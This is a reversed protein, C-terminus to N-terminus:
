IFWKILTMLLYALGFCFIALLILKLLTDGFILLILTLDEKHMGFIPFLFILIKKM